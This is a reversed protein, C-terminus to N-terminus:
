TMLATTERDLKWESDFYGALAVGGFGDGLVGQRLVTVDPWLNSFPPRVM